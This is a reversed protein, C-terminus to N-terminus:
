AREKGLPVFRPGADRAFELRGRWAGDDREPHDTRTHAGRSERRAAAAEVLLGSLLLMNQLEWARPDRFERALIYGSWTAIAAAADELGPGDREPGARRAM